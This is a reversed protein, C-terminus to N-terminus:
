QLEVKELRNMRRREASEDRREASTPRKVEPVEVASVAEDMWGMGMEPGRVTISRGRKLGEEPKTIESMASTSNITVGALAEEDSLRRAEMRRLHSPNLLFYLAFILLEFLVVIAYSCCALTDFEGASFVLSLTSFVGGIADVGLFVLSVGIVAKYKYVEYLQPLLGAAILVASLVGAATTVGNSGRAEAARAGFIWAAELGGAFLFAIATVSVAYTTSKRKDYVLTQAYAIASLACFCQPQVILPIALDKLVCYAGLWIGGLFWILLMASSLGATDKRRWSKWVQPLLQVSWCIAGLTGFVNEAVHNAIVTM